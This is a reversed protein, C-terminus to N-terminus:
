PGLLCRMAAWSSRSGWRALLLGLVLGLAAAEVV